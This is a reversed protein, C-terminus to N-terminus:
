VERSWSDRTAIIGDVKTGPLRPRDPEVAHLPETEKLSALCRVTLDHYARTGEQYWPLEEERLTRVLRAPIGAVM